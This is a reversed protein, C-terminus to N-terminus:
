QSVFIDAPGHLHLLRPVSSHMSSRKRPVTSHAHMGTNSPGLSLGPVMSRSPLQPKSRFPSVPPCRCKKVKTFSQPFHFQKLKLLFKSLFFIAQHEVHLGHVPQSQQSHFFRQHSLRFILLPFFQVAPSGFPVPLTAVLLCTVLFPVKGGVSLHM